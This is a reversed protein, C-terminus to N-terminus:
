RRHSGPQHKPSRGSLGKELRGWSSLGAARSSSVARLSAVTRGPFDPSRSCRSLVKRALLVPSLHGPDRLSSKCLKAVGSAAAAVTFVLLCRLSSVSSPRAGLKERVPQQVQALALRPQGAGGGARLPPPSLRRLGPPPSGGGASWLPIPASQRRRSPRQRRSAHEDASEWSGSRGLASRSHGRSKLAPCRARASLDSHPRCRFGSRGPALQHAPRLPPPCGAPARAGRSVKRAWAGPPM